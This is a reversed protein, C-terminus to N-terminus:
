KATVEEPYLTAILLNDGSFYKQAAKQIREKTLAAVRDPFTLIQTMPLDNQAAYSLNSLWFGNEKLGREYDRLNTEKIKNFNDDSPGESKLEEVTSMTAAILEEVKDPDCGFSISSSYHGRPWRSLGGYIGVGYVGGKDERLIERLRIELVDIASQLGFREETSWPADGHFMLRVMSTPERGKEVRVKVVGPAKTDGIDKAKEERERNPLSALCTEALPKLEEPTFNGVFVFTFDSADQFRERYVEFATDLNLSDLFAQNLPQHRPHDKYLAKEIADGFVVQPNNLRNAASVKLQAMMAQFAKQDARPATFYLHTLQFMTEIDKPSASGSIGETRKSIQPGASAIKGALKKQLQILDFSGLGSNAIINAAMSASAYAKDPVLSHGGPSFSRMLIQDNKFDTPKLLMRIGNSLKWETVGLDEYTKQAIISGKVPPVPILPADLNGDDYAAIELQDVSAIVKIIDEKTPVAIGKKEPASFLIIRNNPTIWDSAVQNVEELSIGPLFTQYLELEKAIGPIPEQQLFNRTYEATYVGSNTKDREAHAMEMSRLADAKVRTLESATFGDRKARKAELLLAKLGEEFAGEKVQAMQIVVEKNRVLSAKGMAGYLYPPNAEQVRENLRRNLMGTYLKEVISARYAGATGQPTPPHKYAIQILSAQLEPDTEISFLTEEHDLVPYSERPPANDPNKVDSFSEIILEEIETTEFDGVAVLAMLNPRYWKRYFDIFQERSATEIIEVKGIPLREAYRSGHFIVPMQKDNLRGQAGRGARWEEIVVGREKDIEETEFKIGQMWDKLMQFATRLIEDDDMPVELMYVTEDFSTYANLHSGFHMGIRELFNVMELKEFNETGNFAMHELFHALGLQSENEMLSGANVILRFMARNEPKKNERIYYCLGNPLEKVTIAPDIPLQSELDIQATTKWPLLCTLTALCLLSNLSKM